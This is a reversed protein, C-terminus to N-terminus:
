KAHLTWGWNGDCRGTAITYPYLNDLNPKIAIYQEVSWETTDSRIEGSNDLDYFILLQGDHDALRTLFDGYIFQDRMVPPCGAASLLYAPANDSIAGTYMAYYFQQSGLQQCVKKFCIDVSSVSAQYPISQRTKFLTISWYIILLSGTLYKIKTPLHTLLLVIILAAGLTYWWMMAITPILSVVVTIGLILLLYIWDLNLTKKNSRNLGFLCIVLPSIVALCIIIFDYSTFVYKNTLSFNFLKYFRISLQDAIEWGYALLNLQIIQNFETVLIPLWLLISSVLFSGLLLLCRRRLKVAGIILIALVAPAILIELSLSVACALGSTLILLTTKKSKDSLALCYWAIIIPQWVFAPNWARENNAVIIPIFCLIAITFLYSWRYAPRKYLLLGLATFIVWTYAFCAIHAYLHSANTILYFPYILYYYLPPLKIQAYSIKTGQLPIEGTSRWDLMVFAYQSFDGDLFYRNNLQRFNIITWVIFILGFILWFLIKPQPSNFKM